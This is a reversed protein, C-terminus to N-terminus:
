LAKLAGGEKIDSYKERLIKSQGSVKFTTQASRNLSVVLGLVDSPMSFTTESGSWFLWFRLNRFKDHELTFNKESMKKPGRKPTMKANMDSDWISVSSPWHSRKFLESVESLDASFMKSERFDNQCWTALYRLCMQFSLGFDGLFELCKSLFIVCFIVNILGKKNIKPTKKMQPILM